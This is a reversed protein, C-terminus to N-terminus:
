LGGLTFPSSWAGWGAANHARVIVDYDPTWDVTFNASPTSGSVTQLYTTGVESDTIQVQYTDIPSNGPDPAQWSAVLTDTLGTPNLNTWLASVGSPVGPPITAPATTVAIPPSSRGSGSLTTSVVRIMYTTQPQLMAISGHSATGTVLTTLVPASSNVPTATLTSSAVASPNVGSPTWTVLFQDGSQVASVSTPTGPLPVVLFASNASNYITDLFADSESFNPDVSPASSLVTTSVVNASFDWTVAAWATYTITGGGIGGTSCVTSLRVAGTPYGSDLDFGTAYSHEQIGGCSHGLIAFAVPQPLRLHVPVGPLGGVTSIPHGGDPVALAAVSACLLVSSAAVIPVIQSMSLRM